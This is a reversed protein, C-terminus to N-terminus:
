TSSASTGEVENRVVIENVADLTGGEVITVLFEQKEVKHYATESTTTPNIGKALFFGAVILGIVVIIAIKRTPSKSSTNM